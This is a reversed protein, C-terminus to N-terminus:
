SPIVSVYNWNGHCRGWVYRTASRIWGDAIRIYISHTTTIWVYDDYAYDQYGLALVSHDGYMNNSHVMLHCPRNNNIETEIKAGSDTGNTLTASCTLGKSKFFSVYAPAVNSDSTSAGSTKMLSYISSYSGSWGTKSDCLVSYKTYNIGVWYMCLNTAATPACAAPSFDSTVNYSRDYSPVDKASYRQYGSEYKSPDTIFDTNNDPPNSGGTSQKLHNKVLGNWLDSYQTDTKKSAKIKKLDDMNVAKFDSTSIDYAVKTNDDFQQETVYTLDDLYYVKINDAKVKKGKNHKEADAKTTDIATDIFPKGDMSYELIPNDNRSASVIIYGKDNGAKDELQFLYASPNNDLDFLAKINEIKVGAKWSSNEDTKMIGVIHAIAVNRAEEISVSSNTNTDTTANSEAFVASISMILTFVVTLSIVKMKFNSM